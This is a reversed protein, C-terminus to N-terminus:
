DLYGNIKFGLEKAVIRLETLAIYEKTDLDEEAKLEWGDERVWLRQENHTIAYKRSSFIRWDQYGDLLLVFKDDHFIGSWGFRRIDYEELIPHGNPIDTM